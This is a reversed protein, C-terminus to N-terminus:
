DKNLHILFNIKSLMSFLIGSLIINSIETSYIKYGVYLGFSFFLLTVSWKRSLDKINKQVSKLQSETILDGILMFLGKYLVFFMLTGLLYYTLDQKFYYYYLIGGTSSATALCMLNIPSLLNILRYNLDKIAYRRKKFRKEIVTKNLLKRAGLITIIAIILLILKEFGNFSQMGTLLYLLVPVGYILILKEFYELSSLYRIM